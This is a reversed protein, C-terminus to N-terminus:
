PKPHAYFYEVISRSFDSTVVPFHLSNEMEWLEVSGGPLCDSEVKYINTERGPVLWDFNRRPESADIRLDCGNFGIWDLSSEIAGPYPVGDIQGGGPFIIFDFTGHIRLSHVPESPQCQSVDEWTSGAFNATAAILDAHECAMRNAMFGGNSYGVIYIRKTDVNALAITAEILERIYTSDDPNTNDFDCCADSGNWYQSGGSDRLGDPYIYLFNFEEHLPLFNLYDEQGQGTGGYGHLSVVLPTPVNPDYADPVEVEVPGRGRDVIFSDAPSLSTLCLAAVAALTFIRHCSFMPNEKVHDLMPHEFVLTDNDTTVPRCVCNVGPPTTM